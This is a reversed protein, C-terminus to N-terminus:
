LMKNTEIDHFYMERHAKEKGKNNWRLFPTINESKPLFNCYFRM